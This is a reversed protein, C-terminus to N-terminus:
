NPTFEGWIHPAPGFISMSRGAFKGEQSILLFGVVPASKGELNKIKGSIYSKFSILTIDGRKEKNIDYINAYLIKYKGKDKYVGGLYGSYEFQWEDNEKYMRGFGGVFTGDSDVTPLVNTIQKSDITKKIPLASVAPMLFLVACILTLIIPKKM